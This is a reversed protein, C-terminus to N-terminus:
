PRADGNMAPPPPPALRDLWPAVRELVADLVALGDAAVLAAQKARKARMAGDALLRAVADALATADAVIEVGEAGSLAAAMAACNATHAGSLVACDLHAAEFLNHGGRDVLSGGVFAIAALRYFVGLEGFTDALYVETDPGVPEGLARRAVRLGRGRALRAIAGGRVPHRPAVVTLLGPHAAAVRRHVAVAIDEEGEHTSAALWLPRDGIRHRLEDLSAADVPLPKAAFKLDGVSAANAAGLMRFRGAQVDDQALCLALSGLMPRALAHWRRWRAHSRESLRGNLLLMPVGRQGTMLVLNPWLESEVLVALDPRWHDLFRGVAGPLDVPVFQHRAGQPLRPALLKAATVTGTTLLVELGPREALMREILALVSMAEGISAAHVWVLPAEPRAAGAIGLREAFREDDEKGHRRRSKLYSVVLPTAAATLGRYLAPLIM